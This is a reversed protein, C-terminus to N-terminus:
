GAWVKVLNAVGIFGLVLGGGALMAQFKEFRRLRDDTAGKFDDLSERTAFTSAQAEMKGILGNHDDLRQKAERDAVEIAKEANKNASVTERRLADIEATTHRDLWWLDRSAYERLSVDTPASSGSAAETSRSAGGGEPETM